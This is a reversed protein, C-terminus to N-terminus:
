LGLFTDALAAAIQTYQIRIPDILIRAVFVIFDDQHIREVSGDSIIRADVPDSLRDELVALQSSEGGGASLVSTEGAFARAVYEDSGGLVGRTDSSVSEREFSVSLRLVVAVVVASICSSFLVTLCSISADTSFLFVPFSSTAACQV